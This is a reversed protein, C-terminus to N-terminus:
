LNKLMAPSVHGVQAMIIWDPTGKEALATIASHRLDHFRVDSLGAVQNIAL